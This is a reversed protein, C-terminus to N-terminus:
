NHNIAPCIQKYITCLKGSSFNPPSHFYGLNTSFPFFDSQEISDTGILSYALLYYQGMWFCARLM